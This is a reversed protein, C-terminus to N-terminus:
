KLALIQALTFVTNKIDGVNQIIYDFHKPEEALQNEAATLRLRINEWTEGRKKMRKELINLPAVIYVLTLKEELLTRLELSCIGFVAIIHNGLARANRINVIDVGYDEGCFTDVAVIDGRLKKEEFERRSLFYYHLGCREGSRPARTTSRPIRTYEPYQKLFETVITDKGVGSPGGICIIKHERM